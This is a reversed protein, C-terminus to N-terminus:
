GKLILPQFLSALKARLVRTEEKIHGFTSKSWRQLVWTMQKIKKDLGVMPDLDGVFEWM